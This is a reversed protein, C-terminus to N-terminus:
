ERRFCKWLLPSRQTIPGNFGDIERCVVGLENKHWIGTVRTQVSRQGKTFLLFKAFIM